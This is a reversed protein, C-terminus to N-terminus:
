YSSRVGSEGSYIFFRMGLEEIKNKYSYIIEASSDTSGDDVFIIEIKKYTQRLISDIYKSLTNSVNYCPVIISVLLEDM